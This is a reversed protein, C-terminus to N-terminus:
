YEEPLLITTACRYGKEDAAETIVWLRAGLRTRYVSLLRTGDSLAQDNLQADQASVDGWDGQLHRHLFESADQGSEVMAGLAGPTAVLQGPTFRPAPQSTASM